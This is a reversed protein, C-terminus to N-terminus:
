EQVVRLAAAKEAEREKTTKAVKDRIYSPLAQAADVACGQALMVPALRLM